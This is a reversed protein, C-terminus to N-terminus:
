NHNIDKHGCRYRELRVCSARSLQMIAIISSVRTSFLKMFSDRTHKEEGFIAGLESMYMWRMKDRKVEMEMFSKNNTKTLVNHDDNKSHSAEMMMEEDSGSLKKKMEVDSESEDITHDFFSPNDNGSIEEDKNKDKDDVLHDKSVSMDNDKSM